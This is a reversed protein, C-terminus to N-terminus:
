NRTLYFTFIKRWKKQIILRYRQLNYAKITPNSVYHFIFKSNRLKPDCAVLTPNKKGRLSQKTLGFSALSFFNAIKPDEHKNPLRGGLFIVLKTNRKRKNKIKGFM